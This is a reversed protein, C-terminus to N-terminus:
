RQGRALRLSELLHPCGFDFPVPLHKCQRKYAVPDITTHTEAVDTELGCEKCKAKAMFPEDSAHSCAPVPQLRASDGGGASHGLAILSKRTGTQHGIPPNTFLVLASEIGQRTFVSTKRVCALGSGGPPGGPEPNRPATRSPVRCVWQQPHQPHQPSPPYSASYRGM